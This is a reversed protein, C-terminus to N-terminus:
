LLDNLTGATSNILLFGVTSGLIDLINIVHMGAVCVPLLLHDDRLLGSLM